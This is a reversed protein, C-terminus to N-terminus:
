NVLGVHGAAAAGRALVPQRAQARQDLRVGGHQALHAAAAQHQAHLEVALASIWGVHDAHQAVLAVQAVGDRAVQQM